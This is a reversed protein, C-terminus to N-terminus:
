TTPTAQALRGRAGAKARALRGRSGTERELWGGGIESIGIDSNGMESNRLDSKRTDSNRLDSQRLDPLVGIRNAHHSHSVPRRRRESAASGASRRPGRIVGIAARNGRPWM